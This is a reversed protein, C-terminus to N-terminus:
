EAAERKIPVVKAKEAAQRLMELVDKSPGFQVVEGARLVLMKNAISLIQPRHTVVIITAGRQKAEVLAKQLAAEGDSDLASNPEDLIIIKPDGFLARALAVRQTQGASLRHGGTEIPTDYGFPMALVMEHVQAAQAAAIVRRDLEAKDAGLAGQFRSINEAITGPLLSSEQPLYGLHPALQDAPWDRMNAGDIRIEGFDPQIGGALARSLTTKGAGSPGVVGCIDGPELVFSVNKVLLSQGDPSRIVVKDVSLKGTPEPLSTRPRTDKEAQEFLEALSQLAQRAQIIQPWSRTVMEVPQLARSLLVSAAIIAGSSIQGEVALWAGLGLALSQLFTRLFKTIGNYRNSSAQLAMNADVGQARDLLHRRILADRMGLSRVVEARRFTSDQSAYARMNAQRAEKEVERSTKSHRLALWIMLGSALLVMLGLAPHILFAVLLFIPTWPVDLLATMAPGSLAARLTDFERMIQNSQSTGGAGEKRLLVRDIVEGALLRDLRNSVLSMLRSRVSELAALTGIAIAVIVTVWFLTLTGGTPVVRDYVQMMYITPALYLLNILASFAGAALVHRRCARLAPEISEPVTMGFIRM